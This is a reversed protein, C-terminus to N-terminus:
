TPLATVIMINEYYGRIMACISGDVFSVAADKIETPKNNKITYFHLDNLSDYGFVENLGSLTYIYTDKIPTGFKDEIRIEYVKFLDVHDNYVDPDREIAAPDIGDTQALAAGALRWYRDLRMENAAENSSWDDEVMDNIVLIPEWAFYDDNDEDYQVTLDFQSRNARTAEIKIPFCDNDLYWPANWEGDPTEHFGDCYVVNYHENSKDTANATTITFISLMIVAALAALLIKKM